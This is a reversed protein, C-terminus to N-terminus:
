DTASAHGYFDECASCFPRLVPPLVPLTTFRPTKILKESTERINYAGDPVEIPPSRHSVDHSHLASNYRVFSVAKKISVLNGGIPKTARM